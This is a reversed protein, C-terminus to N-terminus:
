RYRVWRALERLGPPKGYMLLGVRFIRSAAWMTVLVWVGLWIPAAVQQWIPVGGEPSTIRLVMIFPTMPPVLSLATALTSNPQHVIQFWFMMPIVLMLTLPAMMPQAEKLTNCASGVAALIASILLYGLIYYLIFEGLHGIQVLHQAHQWTAAAYGVGSWLLVMTLGVGAMGLIKGGMLEFPSLASLLVEVVRSSKEEIVSTLLGQSVGFVGMFLLFVFAFPTMMNAVRDSPRRAQESVSEQDIPIPRSLAAVREPDLGADALRIRKVAESLLHRIARPRDDDGAGHVYFICKGKGQIAAAPVEVLGFLSGDRVRQTLQGPVDADPGAPPIPELDVHQGNSTGSQKDLLRAMEAAVRDTRDVIAVRISGAPRFSEVTMRTSLFIMGVIIGPMLLVGVLFAKTKVTEAYERHAVAALKRINM